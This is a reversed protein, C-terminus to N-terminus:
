LGRANLPCHVTCYAPYNHVQPTGQACQASCLTCYVITCHFCLANHPLTHLSNYIICLLTDLILHVLASSYLICTIHFTLTCQLFFHHPQPRSTGVPAWNEQGPACALALLPMPSGKANCKCNTRTHEPMTCVLLM